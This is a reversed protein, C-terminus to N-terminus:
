AWRGSSAINRSLSYSRDTHKHKGWAGFPIVIATSNDETGCEQARETIVQAAEVASQCQSVIDCIEQSSLIFNIGDTTLVLFGDEGHRVMIKRTEPEAIVGTAKLALDGISRTMALRGNVFPQGLSNWAIFGGAKKIREMEDKRNPTHDITLRKAKGKRCLIARSDGVSAVALEAGNRLLAVTATTGCFQLAEDGLSCVQQGFEEDVQMFAQSLVTELNEERSLCLRIYEAMHQYCFEAASAGGHGDYVAFYLVDDRLEEAGCRDENEKRRGIRSDCGVRPLSVSSFTKRFQAVHSGGEQWGARIGLGNWAGTGQDKKLGRQSNGHHRRSASNDCALTTYAGKLAPRAKRLASQIQAGAYSRFM